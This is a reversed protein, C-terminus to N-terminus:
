PTETCIPYSYRAVIYADVQNYLVSGKTLIPRTGLLCTIQRASENIQALKGIVVIGIPIRRVSPKPSKRIMTKIRIGATKESSAFVITM